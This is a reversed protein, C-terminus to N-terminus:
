CPDSFGPGSSLVPRQLYGGGRYTMQISRLVLCFFCHGEMTESVEEEKPFEEEERYDEAM